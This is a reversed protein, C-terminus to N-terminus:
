KRGAQIVHIVGVAPYGGQSDDIGFTYIKQEVGTNEAIIVSMISDKLDVKVM